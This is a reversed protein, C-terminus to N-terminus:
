RLLWIGTESVKCIEFRTGRIVIENILAQGGSSVCYKWRKGNHKVAFPARYVYGELLKLDDKM